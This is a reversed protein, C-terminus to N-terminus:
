KLAELAEKAFQQHTYESFFIKIGDEYEIFGQAQQSLAKTAIELKRELEAYASYEIVHFNYHENKPHNRWVIDDCEDGLSIWFERPESM